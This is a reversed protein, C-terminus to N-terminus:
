LFLLVYPNTIGAKPLFVGLRKMERLDEIQQAIAAQTNAKLNEFPCVLHLVSSTPLPYRQQSVPWDPNYVSLPVEVPPVTFSPTVPPKSPPKHGKLTPTFVNSTKPSPKPSPKPSAKSSPAASISLTPTLSESNPKKKPVPTFVNSPRSM